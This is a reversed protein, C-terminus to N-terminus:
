KRKKSKPPEPVKSFSSAVDSATEHRRKKSPKDSLYGSSDSGHVEMTSIAVEEQEEEEKVHKKKKKKKKKEGAENAETITGHLESTTNGYIAVEEQEEEEKVHKKKKKKKKKEGAENAETITGNLESTTNGDVQCSPTSTEEDDKEEKVTDRKKKKKPTDVPSEETPVPNPETEPPEPQDAPVGSESSEGIALLEQVRFCVCVFCDETLPETVGHSINHL